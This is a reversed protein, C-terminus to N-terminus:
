RLKRYVNRYFRLCASMHSGYPAIDFLIDAEVHQCMEEQQQTNLCPVMDDETSHFFYAPCHPVYGVISSQLLADYFRATEPRTKDMGEPTMVDSLRCSGMRTKIENITYRKAEIWEEYHSLLPEQFFDEKRLDLGYGASTGMVLMPIACPIGTYDAKVCADYTGAVDYPGGGAFIGEIHWLSDKRLELLKTAGLAVAAGQSYGMIWLPNTEAMVYGYHSLLPPLANLMDVATTAASQWHLYPHTLHSSIGYGVYDPMVVVYGIMAFVMELSISRSPAERDASITFHPALIVGRVHRKRPLYVRGSVWLSDGAPSVSPYACGLPLTHQKGVSELITLVRQMSRDSFEHHALYRQVLDWTSPLALLADTASMDNERLHWTPLRAEELPLLCVYNSAMVGASWLM